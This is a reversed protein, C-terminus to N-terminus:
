RQLAFEALADLQEDTCSPLLSWYVGPTPSSPMITRTTTVADFPIPVAPVYLPQAYIQGDVVDTFLLGFQAATVTSPTLVSEALNQGTRFNDNRYLLTGTFGPELARASIGRHASHLQGPTGAAHGIVNAGSIAAVLAVGLILGRLSRETVKGAPREHTCANYQRVHLVDM